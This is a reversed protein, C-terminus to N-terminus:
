SPPSYRATRASRSTSCGPHRIGRERRRRQRAQRRLTKGQDVSGSGGAPIPGVRAHVLPRENGGTVSGNFAKEPGQTPMAPSAAPPRVSCRWTPRSTRRRLGRIRLDKRDSRRQLHSPHHEAPCFASRRCARDRAHHNGHSRGPRPRAQPKGMPLRRGAQGPAAARGRRNRGKSASDILAPPTLGHASLRDRRIKVEIGHGFFIVAPFLALGYVWFARKSFFARRLEIKAITWAQKLRLRNNM